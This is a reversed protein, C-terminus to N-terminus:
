EKATWGEDRIREDETKPLQDAYDESSKEWKKRGSIFTKSIRKPAFLWYRFCCRCAPASKPVLVKQWLSFNIFNEAGM